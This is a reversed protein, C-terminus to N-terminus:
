VTIAYTEDHGNEDRMRAQWELHVLRYAVREARGRIRRRLRRDAKWYAKRQYVNEIPLSWIVATVQDSWCEILTDLKTM